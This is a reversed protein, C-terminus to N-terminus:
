GAKPDSKSGKEATRLAEAVASARDEEVQRLKAQVRSLTGEAVGLLEERGWGAREQAIFATLGDADLDIALTQLVDLEAKSLPPATPDVRWFGEQTDDKLIHAELWKSIVGSPVREGNTLVVEGDVPCRFVGDKFQVTEGPTQDIANGEADRKIRIPRKVLRLDSRRAMFMISGDPVSVLARDETPASDLTAPSM